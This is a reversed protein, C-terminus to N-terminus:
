PCLAGLCVPENCSSPSSRQRGGNGRGLGISPSSDPHQQWPASTTKLDVARDHHSVRGSGLSEGSPLIAECPHQLPHLSPSKIMYDGAAQYAETSFHPTGETPADSVSHSSHCITAIFVVCHGLLISGPPSQPSFFGTRM